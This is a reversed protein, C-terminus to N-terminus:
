LMFDEIRSFAREREKQHKELFREVFDALMKKCDGCFWEGARCERYIREREKEDLFFLQHYEFVSCIEPKGGKERHEKLTGGGGTFADMVKKRAVEPPDTTYIASGPRSASMKTSGDLSKMFRSHLAAPKEVDMKEAVDRTLKIFVDQDIAVPVVVPYGFEVTPYLIHAIQMAPYFHIGINMDNTFGFSAKVTSMTIRKAARVAINYVSQNMNITDFMFKTRGPDFGLAIIDAANSRDLESLEGFELDRKYLYKEDDSFPIFVFADLKEQLFKIFKFLLLHALHMQASVGRGSVIAVKRGSKWKELYKDFDRHSIFYGVDFLRHSIGHAEVMEKSFPRAGFEEILKRYNVEGEVEYPNVTAM